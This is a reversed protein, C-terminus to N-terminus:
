AVLRGMHKAAARAHRTLGAARADALALALAALGQGTEVAFAMEAELFQRTLDRRRNRARLTFSEAFTAAAIEPRARRSEHLGRWQLWAAVEDPETVM